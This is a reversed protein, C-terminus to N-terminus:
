LDALLQDQDVKPKASRKAGSTPKKNSKPPGATRRRLASTVLALDRLDLTSLSEWNGMARAVIEARKAELESPAMSAVDLPGREPPTAAITDSM